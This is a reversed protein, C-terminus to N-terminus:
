GGKALRPDSNHWWGRLMERVSLYGCYRERRAAIISRFRRRLSRRRYACAKCVRYEAGCPEHCVECVGSLEYDTGDLGFDTTGHLINM